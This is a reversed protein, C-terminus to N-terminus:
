FDGALSQQTNVFSITQPPATRTRTAQYGSFVFLKDKLIPAGVTGGFQNRRLTDQTAAFFNRANFAGNRVFEFLNGHFQNTGSKTVVNVVSGPHLGYRSSVGGTQVNFEQLADPFPYPLNVNSHSDNHDAGDLLFNNGNIQGGSVSVGVASSYDHTTIVRSSNPPMAAGGSLLILDTAQRGNLPLDTIRRQDIVESVSTDETEVMAANASVRVDQTVAGVQLLVNIQVNNSVQLVIGSQVYTNFAPACVELLYPGV